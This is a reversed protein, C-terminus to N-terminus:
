MVAKFKLSNSKRMVSMGGPKGFLSSRGKTKGVKKMKAEKFASDRGTGSYKDMVVLAELASAAGM